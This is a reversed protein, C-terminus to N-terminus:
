LSVTQNRGHEKARYLAQDTRNLLSDATDDRELISVGLSLTVQLNLSPKPHFREAAFGLRIREAISWATERNVGPLIVAFEEGGYRCGLDGNRIQERIVSGLRSLVIDGQPHGYADNFLKFHDVDIMILALPQDERRAHEIEKALQSMFYRKNGLKTLEDTTSLVTLRREKELWLHRERHLLRIRDALAFSLLVSELAQALGVAHVTINSESLVGFSYFVFVLIGLGLVSWGLLYYRAPIFGQRLRILGAAIIVVPSFLGATLAMLNALSLKGGLDLGGFILAALIILRLLWDTKFLYQKTSLFVRTFTAGFIFSLASLFVIHPVSISFLQPWLVKLQGCLTVTYILMSTIYLIYYFYTKDRLFVLIALNYLIMSVLVGSIVGELINKESTIREMTPLDFLFLPPNVEFPDSVRLYFYRDQDFARPIPFVNNSSGPRTLRDGAQWGDTITKFEGPKQDELPLFLSIQRPLYYGFFLFFPLGGGPDLQPSKKLRFRYWAVLKRQSKGTPRTDIPRFAEANVPSAAEEITMKGNPDWLVDLYHNLHLSTRGADLIPATGATAFRGPFLAILIFVAILLRVSASKNSRNM